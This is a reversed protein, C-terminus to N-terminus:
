HPCEGQRTKTLVQMLEVTLNFYSISARSMMDCLAAPKGIDYSEQITRDNPITTSVAINKIQHFADESFHDTIEPFTDCMTFVSGAVKLHPNLQNQVLQIVELLQGLEELAYPQCQMPIMVWNSAALACITFFGLSSPSDIIIYDYEGSLDQCINRLGMEKGPKVSLKHEVQFLDIKAPILHLFDIESHAIIDRAPLIGMIAQYLHHSVTKTDVGMYTTAAGHPDCDILLTKKELIALSAAINVATTTKGVGDRHGAISIINNMITNKIIRDIFENGGMMFQHDGGPPHSM